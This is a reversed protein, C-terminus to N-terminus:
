RQHPSQSIVANPNTLTSMLTKNYIIAVGGGSHVPISLSIASYGVPCM